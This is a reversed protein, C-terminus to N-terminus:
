IYGRDTDPVVRVFVSLLLILFVATFFIVVFLKVGKKEKSRVFSVLAALDAAAAIATLLVNVFKDSNFIFELIAEM